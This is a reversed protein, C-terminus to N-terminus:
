QNLFTKEFYTTQEQERRQIGKTYTPVKYLNAEYKGYTHLVNTESLLSYPDKKIINNTLERLSSRNTQVYKLAKIFEEDWYLNLMNGNTPEQSSIHTKDQEVEIVDIWQRRPACKDLALFNTVSTQCNCRISNESQTKDFKEDEDSLELDIENENKKTSLSNKEQLEHQVTARYKVHLHASLWWKPKLRCLLEWNVPSGLQHNNIDKRFYPKYKLLRQIDGYYVIENPWDHSIMIDIGRESNLLYFPLVDIRKVCYLTKIDLKSHEIGNNLQRLEVDKWSLRPTEFVWDKFIGSISAIRVGKFWIINSYGLYYINPAVYGGYPLEMLHKMSEHNGGIFIVPVPIKCTDNSYYKHFDGMKRYKLPVSIYNMDEKNRISQFDGLIILLDLPKLSHLQRVKQFVTDLEGHCCGQVAIRIKTMNDRNYYM